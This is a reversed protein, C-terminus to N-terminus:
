PIQTPLLASLPEPTEQLVVLRFELSTRSPLNTGHSANPAASPQPPPFDSAPFKMVEPPLQISTIILQEHLLPRIFCLSLLLPIDTDLTGLHPNRFASSPRHVANEVCTNDFRKVWTSAKKNGFVTLGTPLACDERHGLALHHLQDQGVASLIVRQQRRRARDSDRAARVELPDLSM